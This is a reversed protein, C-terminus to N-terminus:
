AATLSDAPREVLEGKMSHIFAGFLLIDEPFSTSKVLLETIRLNELWLLVDRTRFRDAKERLREYRYGGSGCGAKIKLLALFHRIAHYIVVSPREAGTSIIRSLSEIIKPDLRPEIGDILDFVADVRYSGIVRELGRKDVRSGEFILSLKELENQIDFLNEGVSRVLAEAAERELRVDMRSAKQLVWRVIDTEALKEFDLLKGKAKVLSELKKFDRPKRARRGTEDFPNFMMILVSSPAPDECYAILDKWSGRLRELEKLVLVRRDAMFPFSRASVLFEDLEVEAGYAVSMNFSRMDDSVILSAIKSAMEEMIYCDPGSFLYISAIDKGDLEGFIKKYYSLKAKVTVV